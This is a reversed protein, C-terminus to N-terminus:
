LEVQAELGYTEIEETTFFQGFPQFGHLYVVMLRIRQQGAAAELGAMASATPEWDNEEFSVFDLAAVPRISVRASSVPGPWHVELGARLKGKRLRPASHFIYAGGGYVRWSDGGVALLGDVWELNLDRRPFDPDALLFEDGLHSSQHFIRVRGSVRGVRFTVPVGGLFDTNILDASEKDLDFQSLVVGSIDLQIASCRWPLPARLMGLTGGFSLWGVEVEGEGQSTIPESDFNVHRLSARFGPEKVAAILPSFLRTGPFVEWKSLDSGPARNEGCGDARAQGAVGISAAVFAALALVARRRRAM